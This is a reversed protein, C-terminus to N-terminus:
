QEDGGAVEDTKRGFESDVQVLLTVALSPIACLMIWIFFRQYGILEELWGSWMGPIMMGLAMFGTCLAYHVTEYKGRAVYICYLLYGTFGFGYGFQEVAVAATITWLNDPQAYALYLFALNPLHIILAMPILWRRLGDRAVVFGGIIGGLTLMIMGVTGYVFGVEGTSLALGGVERPDLLFPTALKVLQAEPLRYLLLFGLILLIRPKRFFEVIPVTFGTVSGEEPESVIAIDNAPKPLVVYHYVCFAIMMAAILFFTVSWAFALDGSRIEFAAESPKDLTEDVRIVSAFPQSWNADTVTFREGEAVKFSLDGKAHGFQIIQSEGPPIPNALRMWVVALDGSRDDTKAAEDPGFWNRIAEELTALWGPDTDGDANEDKEAEYFNHEINWDRAKEILAKADSASRGKDSIDFSESAVVVQQEDDNEVPALASSDFAIGQPESDTTQVKVTVTPLGTASELTGALMVLLGQGALMAIRYATSRIGVFWAQQHSSLALLYFGDAAVDHTASSVAVLTLAALTYRIFDAAPIALAACGLGAGVLLQMAVVWGRRTGFRQVLPSWLPKLAYPAYLWSTYLAVETNGVGLRKFMIVAVTMVVVFPVGQTFYLSPVWLWPSRRSVGSESDAVNRSNSM